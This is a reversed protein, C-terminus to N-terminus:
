RVKQSCVFLSRTDTLKKIEVAQFFRELCSRCEDATYDHFDNPNQYHAKFFQPEGVILPDERSVFEILLAEGAYSALTKIVDGLKKGSGLVLHHLIALALVFDGQMRQVSSRLIPGNSKFRSLQRRSSNELSVHAAVEPTPSTFDMVVPLIPLREEKAKRYLIDMCAADNDMALVRAGSRAALISFWGTNAGIDLVTQPKFKQLANFVAWQKPKWDPSPRFDFDEKKEGYYTTYDSAKLAVDIGGIERQLIEIFRKWDDHILAHERSALAQRYSTELGNQAGQFAEKETIADQSTNLVTEFLRKQASAYGKLKLLYMPYLVGPYFMRCFIENFLATEKSWLLQFPSQFCLPDLWTQKVLDEKPIISLFDIYKPRIGDFAVNTTVGCDKLLLEHHLLTLTLQLQFLAADQFMSPPWEFAYTVFHVPQHELVVDYGMHTWDGNPCVTTPILGANFLGAHQCTRYVSLVRRGQGEFVGRLIRGKYSFVEGLPDFGQLLDVEETDAPNPLPDASTRDASDRARPHLSSPRAIAPSSGTKMWHGKEALEILADPMIFDGGELMEGCIFDVFPDRGPELRHASTPQYEWWTSSDSYVVPFPIQRAVFYTYAYKRALQCQEPGLPGFSAARDLLRRYVSPSLGDYTFGKQGYHAEGALIVPKGLLSLELGGTGYATVGGDIMQMFDLPSIKEAAPMLTVHPPLRPFRRRILQGVGDTTDLWAEAPHVKVIWRVDPTSIAYSLTDIVWEDLTAYAMPAADVVADWNIHCLIGWVPTGSRLGYRASLEATNGRFPPMGQLDFAVHQQYRKDLYGNLRRDRSPSLDEAARSTWAAARMNHLDVRGPDEINRFYFRASLYSAMWASVPIGRAFAVQLAPGWDVYVGHSMVVRTPSFWDMARQAASACLLASYAYERVADDHGELPAGKLYRYVSSRANRGVPLSDYRLGDLDSWSLGDTSRRLTDSERPDAHDGIFSHPVGLRNLNASCATRCEACSWGPESSGAGGWSTVAARRAAARLICGRYAGDCIVAHIVAGRHQLARALAGEVDLM